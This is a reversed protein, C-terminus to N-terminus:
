CRSPAVAEDRALSCLVHEDVVGVNGTLAVLGEVFALGDLEVNGGAALAVFSLVDSEGSRRDRQEGGVRSTPPTRRKPERTPVRSRHHRRNHNRPPSRATTATDVVQPARFDRRRLDHLTETSTSSATADRPESHQSPRPTHTSASHGTDTTTPRSAPPTPAPQLPPRLRRRPTRTPPPELHHNPRPARTPDLRDLARSRIRSRLGCRHRSSRSAKPSARRGAAKQRRTRPTDSQLHNALPLWRCPAAALPLYGRPRDGTAAQQRESGGMAALHRIPSTLELGGESVFLHEISQLQEVTTTRLGAPPTATPSSAACAVVTSTKPWTSPSRRHPPRQRRLIRYM